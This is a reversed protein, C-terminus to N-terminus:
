IAIAPKIRAKCSLDKKQPGSLIIILKNVRIVRIVGEYSAIALWIPEVMAQSGEPTQNSKRTECDEEKEERLEVINLGM